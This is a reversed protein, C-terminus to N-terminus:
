YRIGAQAGFGHFGLDGLFGSDSDWRQAEWFIASVFDFADFENVMQAGAQLEWVQVFENHIDYRGNSDFASWVNADGYLLATRASGFISFGETLIPRNGQVAFTPGAGSFEVGTSGAWAFDPIDEFNIENERLSVRAWRAGASGQWQWNRFSGRQTLESDIADVDLNLTGALPIVVGNEAEGVYDLDQDFTFWRVRVGGGGDGEYGLFVRQGFELDSSISGNENTVSPTDGYYFLRVVGQNSIKPALFLLDVGSYIGEEAAAFNSLMGLTLLASILRTYANRM